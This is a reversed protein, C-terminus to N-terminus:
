PANPQLRRLAKLGKAMGAVKWGPYCNIAGFCRSLWPDQSGLISNDECEVLPVEIGWALATRILASMVSARDATAISSHSYENELFVMIVGSHRDSGQTIQHRAIVPLVADLWHCSWAIFQPDSSRFWAPQEYKQPRQNVLWGPFGGRNWEACIFPGPRAIVYLQFSEALNLWDEFDRLDVQSFDTLSSPAAPEHLNWPIYTEVCNFGAAKIKAFRERWLEKPCRFYHFTGSYIFQDQGHITLCQGDYRIIDPKPFLPGPYNLDPEALSAPLAFAATACLFGYALLGVLAPKTPCNM